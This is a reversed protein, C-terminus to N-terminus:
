KEEKGGKSDEEEKVKVIWKRKNRLSKWLLAQDLRL